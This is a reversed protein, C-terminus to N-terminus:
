LHVSQKFSHVMQRSCKQLLHEKITYSFNLSNEEWWINIQSKNNNKSNETVVALFM